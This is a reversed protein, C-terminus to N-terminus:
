VHARGIERLWSSERPAPQDAARLKSLDKWPSQQDTRFRDNPKLLGIEMLEVAEGETMWGLAVGDRSLEIQKQPM